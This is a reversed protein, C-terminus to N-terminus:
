EYDEIRWEDVWDISVMGLPHEKDPEEFRIPLWVYDSISTDRSADGLILKQEESLDDACIDKRIFMGEFLDRYVLYQWEMHDPVWRDACAIYLDKKGPVKFVSSIQSHYSTQSEDRAHPNGM